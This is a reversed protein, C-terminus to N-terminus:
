SLASSPPKRGWLMRWFSFQHEHHKPMGLFTKVPFCGEQLPVDEAVGGAARHRSVALQAVELETKCLKDM